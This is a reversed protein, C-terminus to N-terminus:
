PEHVAFQPEVCEYTGDPDMGICNAGFTSLQAALAAGTLAPGHDRLLIHIEASMTNGEALLSGAPVLGGPGIVVDHGVSSEEFLTGTFTARGGNNAIEGNGGLVSIGVANIQEINFGAAPNGPELFIDGEGCVGGLCQSPDNFVVWWYTYAHGRNLHTAKIHASITGAAGDRVLASLGGAPRGDEFRFLKSVDRPAASVGAATFLLAVISATVALLRLRMTDTIGGQQTGDKPM